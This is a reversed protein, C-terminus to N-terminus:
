ESIVTSTDTLKNIVLRSTFSQLMAKCHDELYKTKEIEEHIINKTLLIDNKYNYLAIPKEGNFQLCYSSDIIQYIDNNFICCFHNSHNYISEGFAIFKDPYNLYDFITPMIDIQQTPLLCKGKFSIDTPHFYIIPISLRGLSTKYDDFYSVSTHDACIVFLTNNYWPMSSVASFFQRLSYDTYAVSELIKIEGKPFKDKYKAPIAYPPHSSLSFFVSFFPRKFTNLKQAFFQFFEEDYIGWSGDYASKDPYEYEGYYNDIEAARCFDNFGMTGNKGGHFFSTHYGKQKLLSSLSNIKNVSYISGILSEDMLSPMSAVISPLADISRCANAYANKCVLSHQMLSDLFPTYSKGTRKFGEIYEKSFSELIIIIVHTLVPEKSFGM